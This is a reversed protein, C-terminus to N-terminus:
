TAYLITDERRGFVDRRSYHTQNGQVPNGRTRRRAGRPEEDRFLSGELLNSLLKTRELSYPSWSSATRPSTRIGDVSTNGSLILFSESWVQEMAALACCSAWVLSEKSPLQVKKEIEKSNSDDNSNTQNVPNGPISIMSPVRSSERASSDIASKDCDSMGDDKDIPDDDGPATSHEPGVIEAWSTGKKKDFGHKQKTVQMMQYFVDVAWDSSSSPTFDRGSAVLLLVVKRRLAPLDSASLIM